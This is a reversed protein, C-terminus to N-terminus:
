KGCKSGVGIYTFAALIAGLYNVGGVLSYVAGVYIAAVVGALVAALVSCGQPHINSDGALRIEPPVFTEKM